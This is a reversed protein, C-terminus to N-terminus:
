NVNICYGDDEDSGRDEAKKPDKPPNRWYHTESFRLTSRRMQFSYTTKGGGVNQFGYSFTVESDSATANPADQNPKDVRFIPRSDSDGEIKRWTGNAVQFDDTLGRKYRSLWIEGRAELIKSPPKEHEFETPTNLSLVIFVDESPLFCAYAGPNRLDSVLDKDNSALMEDYSFCALSPKPLTSCDVSFAVKRGEQPTAITSVLLIFLAAKVSSIRNSRFRPTFPRITSGMM